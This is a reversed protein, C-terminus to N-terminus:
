VERKDVGGETREEKGVEGIESEVIVGSGCLCAVSERGGEEMGMSVVVVVVLGGRRRMMPRPEQPVTKAMGLEEKREGLRVELRM